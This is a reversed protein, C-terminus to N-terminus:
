KNKQTLSIFPFVVKWKRRKEGDLYIVTHKQRHTQTHHAKREGKEAVPPPPIFLLTFARRSEKVQGGFLVDTIGGGNNDMSTHQTHTHIHAHHADQAFVLSYPNLNFPPHTFSFM